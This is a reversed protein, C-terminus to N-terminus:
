RRSNFANELTEEDAYELEGGVPLGLGLHTIKIPEGSGEKIIKEVLIATARGEPTPNTAFIIEKFLTPVGFNKPNALRIKLEGLRASAIESKKLTEITGGLVYYLGNFRKTKEITELDAEKEVVCLLSKDRMSDNCIPCLNNKSGTKEFPNFCFACYVVKNKMDQISAVIEDIKEQPQKVLYFVFRRATRPGVTPFKAFLDILKQISVPLM